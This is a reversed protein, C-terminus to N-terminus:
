QSLLRRADALAARYGAHWYFRAESGEDLYKSADDIANAKLWEAIGDERERIKELPTM